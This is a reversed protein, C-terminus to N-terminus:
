EQQLIWNEPTRLNNTYKGQGVLIYHSVQSPNAEDELKPRGANWLTKDTPTKKM